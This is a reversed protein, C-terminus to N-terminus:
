RAGGTDRADSVGAQQIRTLEAIVRRDARGALVAERIVASLRAQVITFGAFRPRVWAQEITSLTRSYFGGVPANVAPSTWASRLAPQGELAPIVTSQTEDSVLWAIHERLAASVSTRHSVALGTGGITSGTRGGPGRPADDFSIPHERDLRAYGVYGYVLPVAAIDNSTSMRELLGIPNQTESGSPRRAALRALIELAAM